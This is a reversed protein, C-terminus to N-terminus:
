YENQKVVIDYIQKRLNEDQINRSIIREIVREKLRKGRWSDPKERIIQEHLNIAIEENGLNDFLSRLAPSKRVGMPYTTSEEPKKVKSSLEVIKALYAQYDIVSQKRERIIEDLLQSMKDFYKPNTSSEDIIIRRVNNEITEAVAENNKKMNPPLNNLADEGRAVILDILSMDDFASLIESDEASIYSDILHRMAPEYVKLDIYDGSSLKVEARVKEIYAVYSKIEEAQLKTYGAEIMENAINAYSRILLSVMKYLAVRKPENAKLEEKDETNKACFYHQFALTDKPPEVPECLTKVSELLDDLKEKAQSLRNKLLGEVDEKEYQDFAETTYDNVAGELSKFLDKYDIIYGYEKDDGDLRNVRCIAQFLGHDKMSKDIYLYTASPADFGTLLKDVVILLKMQAPENIFKEKVEKEFVETTKGDLMKLYIEYKELKETAGEDATEEGKIDNANPSYSTIIACKKFGKNIFLEYYKCAEYITGAVLMANGRGNQLRDKTEMDFIIDTVIKDLRSKSSFVSQLTGWRKKLQARAADTLGKTKVDFWTDVKTQSTINQDINRAEYRLDLVVKDTVAEDFKYTHIYNGFVELSSAKDKKLLPTGTFGIFMANPLIMKMANHLSGSQTRHCEDVFVYLDGKASFDKPLNSKLEDLFNEYSDDRTRGFKHVLSCMLLPTTTNLKAILDAGSKTRYINEEVGNFVKEIQEDLEERDTIILIRANNKNERVWKTLWVMTLSKGSGQTHWIIGGERKHVSNQAARVGFYQNPRCAKKIGRDYVIFDHIIELLREKNFISILNKDLLYKENDSQNRIKRSRDDKADIDDKWTLYYKEPTEIVGYKVGETDNGAIVLQITSFFSQIFNKSQSNLNQRIGESTSVTSRKLEIIALAIGNVYLVLDPRKTNTGKVTVEEAVYFNNSLPNKWDILWVTQKNDGINEKIKIGYRLLSYVDKNIDYLSKTQNSSVKILESIARRILEDSYGSDRLFQNLFKEEINKNIRDKWDGLYRYGLKNSFLSVVRKQTIRENQGIAGSM